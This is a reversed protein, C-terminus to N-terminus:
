AESKDEFATWFVVKKSVAKGSAHLISVMISLAVVGVFVNAVDMETQSRIIM